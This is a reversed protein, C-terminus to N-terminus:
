RAAAEADLREIRTDLETLLQPAAELAGAELLRTRALVFRDRARPTRGALIDLEALDRLTRGHYEAVEPARQQAYLGSLVHDLEDLGRQADNVRGARLLAHAYAWEARARAIRTPDGQRTLVLSQEFAQLADQHLGRTDLLWGLNAWLPAEWSPKGASAATQIARRAWEIQQADDSVVSAMQAAQLARVTEDHQLCYAYLEAFKALADVRREEKWASLGRALLVRSWGRPSDEDARESARTLWATAEDVRGLLALVSAAQAAAEVFVSQHPSSSAAYAALRYTELAKAYNRAEFERDARELTTNLPEGSEPAETAACGVLSSGLPTSLGLLLAFLLNSRAM